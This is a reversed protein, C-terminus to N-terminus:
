KLEGKDKMEQIVDRITSDADKDLQGALKQRVLHPLEDAKLGGAAKITTRILNRLVTNQDPKWRTM